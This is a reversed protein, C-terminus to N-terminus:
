PSQTDSIRGSLPFMNRWFVQAYVLKVIFVPLVHKFPLVNYASRVRKKITQNYREIEPVHEDRSVVNITAGLAALDGRM